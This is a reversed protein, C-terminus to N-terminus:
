PLLEFSNFFRDAKKWGEWKPDGMVSVQYFRGDSYVFLTRAKNRIERIELEIQRGVLKGNRTFDSEGLLKGNFRELFKDRVNDYAAKTVESDAIPAPSANVNYGQGRKATEDKLDWIVVERGDPATMMREQPKGPMKSKFKHENSVVEHWGFYPDRSCGSALIKISLFLAGLWNARRLWTM